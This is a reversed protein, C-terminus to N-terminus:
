SYELDVDAIFSSLAQRLVATYRDAFGPIVSFDSSLLAESAQRYTMSFMADHVDCHWIALREDEKAQASSQEWFIYWDSTRDWRVYAVLPSRVPAM